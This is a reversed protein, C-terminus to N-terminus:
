RSVVRRVITTLYMIHLMSAYVITKQALVQLTLRWPGFVVVAVYGVVLAVYAVNVALGPLHNLWIVITLCAVYGLLGGFAILVLHNHLALVHDIPALGVGAFALGSATGFAVSAIGAWRARHELALDRWTWAFAVLASGITVLAIAFLVASAYNDHGSFAHTAGLDSFFNHTFQYHSTTRDIWTGGAYLAMAIASLVVFQAAAFRLFGGRWYAGM